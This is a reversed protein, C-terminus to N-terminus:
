FMMLDHHITVSWDTQDEWQAHLEDEISPLRHDYRRGRLMQSNAEKNTEKNTMTYQINKNMWVGNEGGM